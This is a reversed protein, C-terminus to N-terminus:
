ETYLSNKTPLESGHFLHHVAEGPQTVEYEVTKRTLETAAPFMVM